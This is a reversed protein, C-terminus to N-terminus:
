TVDPLAPRYLWATFLDDLSEGAHQRALATFQDTRVTGHRHTSTWARLLGFFGDDGIRTRLAHLTLAGRQYVRDDFMRAVGPDALVLDQPLTNLVARSRAAHWAASEGGSVESWLWEAYNAFGENLWIHRWDGVTLSNGFWQHALEHAVLHESSRRGDVHNAGFVSVGQAEVPVDLDEDAVVVTYEGFPYPGFLRGFEALMAPQRGFDHGFADTMHASVAAWQPVPGPLDLVQYHGIQVTVLYSPTPAPQHYVWTTRGAGVRWSELTGGAIVTYPSATTMSIRYSAKDAPHDNCPFWSPAGIPQSAVLVGDALRDWGLDGWHRTRVPQPTGSYRVEVVFEAGAPVLESPQIRLKGTRHTYKAPRQGNVLVRDVRLGILDLSFGTLPQTSIADIRARGALRGAGPRYDLTLDYHTVRYGDNGHAPLYSDAGDKM